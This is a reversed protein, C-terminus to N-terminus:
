TAVFRCSTRAQRRTKALWRACRRTSVTSSTIADWFILSASVSCPAKRGYRNSGRSPSSSVEARCDAIVERLMQAATVDVELMGSAEIVLLHTPDPAKRLATAIDHRFNDANFFTLPAQFGLVLVGPQHETPRRRAVPWRISTSPVKEFLIIHARTTSWVGQLLSLVIGLAAGQEIPLIVIPAAPCSGTAASSRLPPPDRM